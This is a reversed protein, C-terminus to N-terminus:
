AGSAARRASVKTNGAAAILQLYLNEVQERENVQELIEVTERDSSYQLALECITKVYDPAEADMKLVTQLFTTRGPEDISALIRLFYEKERRQHDDLQRVLSAALIAGVPVSPGDVERTVRSLIEDFNKVKCGVLQDTEFSRYETLDDNIRSAYAHADSAYFFMCNGRYSHWAKARKFSSPTIEQLALVAEPDVTVIGEFRIDYGVPYGPQNADERVWDWDFVYGHPDAYVCYVMGEPAPRPDGSNSFARLPKGCYARAHTLRGVSRLGEFVVTPKQVVRAGCNKLEYVAYAPMGHEIAETDQPDMRLVWPKSEMFRSLRQAADRRQSESGLKFTIESEGVDSGVLDRPRESAGITGYLEGLFSLAEDRESSDIVIEIGGGRLKWQSTGPENSTQFGSRVLKNITAALCVLERQWLAADAPVGAIALDFFLTRDRRYLDMLSMITPPRQGLRTLQESIQEPPHAFVSM